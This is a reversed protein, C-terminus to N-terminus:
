TTMRAIRKPLYPVLNQPYVPWAMRMFDDYFLTLLM